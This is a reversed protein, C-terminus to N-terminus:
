VVHFYLTSFSESEHVALVVYFPCGVGNLFAEEIAYM